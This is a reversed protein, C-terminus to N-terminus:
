RRLALDVAFAMVHLGAYAVAFEAAFVVATHMADGEGLMKMIDDATVDFECQRWFEALTRWKSVFEEMTSPTALELASAASTLADVDNSDAFNGGAWQSNCFALAANYHEIIIFVPM